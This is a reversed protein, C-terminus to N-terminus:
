VYKEVSMVYDHKWGGLKQEGCRMVVHDKEAKFEFDSKMMVVHFHCHVSGRSTTASSRLNSFLCVFNYIM